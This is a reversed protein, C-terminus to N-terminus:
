AGSKCRSTKVRVRGCARVAAQTHLDERGQGVRARQKRQKRHAMWGLRGLVLLALAGAAGGGVTAFTAGWGLWSAQQAENRPSSPRPPPTSPPPQPLASPPPPRPFTYEIADINPPVTYSIEPGCLESRLCSIAMLVLFHPADGDARQYLADLVQEATPQVGPMELFTVKATVNGSMRASSFAVTLADGAFAGEFNADPLMFELAGQVIERLKQEEESPM